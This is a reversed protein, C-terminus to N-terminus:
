YGPFLTKVSDIAGRKSLRFGSGINPISSIGGGGGGGGTSPKIWQYGTWWYLSSDSPSYRIAGSRILTDTPISRPAYLTSDFQGRLWKYGYSYVPQLQVQAQSSLSIFLILLAAVYKNYFARLVKKM